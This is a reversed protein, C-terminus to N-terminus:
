GFILMLVGYIVPQHVLYIILTNRGIWTLPRCFNKYFVEPLVKEKIDMGAFSGSIFMFIWPILPYYDGSSIGTDFGLAFLVYDLFDPCKIEGVLYYFDFLLIFVVFLVTAVIYKNVKIKSLVKELGGYIMMSMGFFHLIGFVILEDPMFLATVVTVIMGCGFTKVGRKINSRTLNCCVGSIFVLISVFCDRFFYIGRSNMLEVRVGFIFNLDYLLHFLIVLILLFGRLTDLMEIRKKM